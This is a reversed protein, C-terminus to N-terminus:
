VPRIVMWREIGIYGQWLLDLPENNERMGAGANRRRSKEQSDEM